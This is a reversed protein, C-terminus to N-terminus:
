ALHWDYTFIEFIKARDKCFHFYTKYAFYIALLIQSINLKQRWLRPRCLLGCHRLHKIRINAKTYEEWEGNWTKNTYNSCNNPAPTPTVNAVAAWIVLPRRPFTSSTFEKTPPAATPAKVADWTCYLLYLSQLCTDKQDAWTLTCM